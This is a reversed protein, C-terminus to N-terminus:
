SNKGIYIVSIPYIHDKAWKYTSTNANFAIKHNGDWYYWSVNPDDLSGGIGYVAPQINGPLSINYGAESGTFDSGSRQILLHLWVIKLGGLNLIQYGSGRDEKLVEWGDSGVVGDCSTKSWQLQSLQGGMDNVTNNLADFNNNIAEPGASMGTFIKTLDAM